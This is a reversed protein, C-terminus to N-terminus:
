KVDVARCFRKQSEINDLQVYDEPDLVSISLADVSRFIAVFTSSKSVYFSIQSDKTM